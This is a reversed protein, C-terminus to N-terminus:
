QWCSRSSYYFVCVSAAEQPTCLKVADFFSKPSSLALRRWVGAGRGHPSHAGAGRLAGSASLKWAKPSFPCSPPGPSSARGWPLLAACGPRPPPTQEEPAATAGLPGGSDRCSRRGAAAAGRGRGSRRRRREWPLQPHQHPRAGAGRSTRTRPDTHTHTHTHKPASPCLSLFGGSQGGKTTGTGPQSRTSTNNSLQASRITM